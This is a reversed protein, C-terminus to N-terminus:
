RLKFTQAPPTFNPTSTSGGTYRAYRTIRFDDLYGTIYEQGGTYRSGITVSTPGQIYNTSGTGCAVGNLYLTVSTGARVYALHQWSNLPVVSTGVISLSGNNTYAYMKTGSSGILGIAWNSLTSSTRFDTLYAGNSEAPNATLYIWSEITFDGSLGLAPSSPIFNYDNGDLFIAGTGYKKQVTSVKSDNVTELVLRGSSDRAAADTFNLLLSTNSVATLPATPPTFNATYVATGKIIRLDAIYGKFLDTYGATIYKGVGFVESSTNVTSATTTTGNSVGNLYHTYTTGSKVFAIHNWSNLPVTNTATLGVAGAAGYFSPKGQNAGGGIIGYLYGSGGTSTFQNAIAYSMDATSGYGTLYIWAEITYNISGSLDLNVNNPTTLYDGTGDFYASGGHTTPSYAVTPRFPSFAQVQPTGSVTFVTNSASSDVFRNSHCVLLSTNTIPTLPSTDPTFNATYLATGNVIRLNSIYGNFYRATSYPAHYGIKLQSGNASTGWTWGTYATSGSAVGNIYLTVSAGNRVAAIHTWANFPVSATSDLNYAVANYYWYFRAKNTTTVNLSFYTDGVALIAPAEAPNAGQSSSLPYVWCEITGIASAGNLFSLQSPYTSGAQTYSLYADSGNFYGSWGAPSFPSFTGQTANGNRTILFQNSSSDLFTHNNHPQDYQLTLLQTNALATLPQTPPTFVQTNITTAATDYNAPVTKFLRFDTLYGTLLNGGLEAVIQLTGANLGYNNTNGTAYGILKGNLFIRVAGSKRTYCIHFWEYIPAQVNSTVDWAIGSRGIGFGRSSTTGGDGFFGSSSASGGMVRWDTATSTNTKYCWAEISFDGTGVDLNASNAAQVYDGTGDFYASGSTGTNTINFPNFSRVAVDGNRTITFGTGSNATSNDIFRNSQCTLLVTNTIPALPTTPVPASSATYVGSGIVIRWNSFYGTAAATGQNSAGLNWPATNNWVSLSTNANITTITGNLAGYIATGVRYVAIHNWQNLTVTGFAIQNALDDVTNGSSIWATIVGSTSVIIRFGYDTSSNPQKNLIAQTNAFTTPYYFFEICFSSSGLELIPSDAVSLYDSTGDFYNSWGTGYPTFNSARTDGYAILNFNNNSSDTLVNPATDGNILLTTLNFYTDSAAINVTFARPSDQLEADTAVVTFSYSTDNVLGSVTGSLLGGSTLTLGSPLTSGAQLAYTTASTASLQISIAVGDDQQPLTSSTVWSPTASYTVANVRIATGGDPNTVYLIYTGAAQAPLQVRLETSSTFTVATASTTGVVVSCGTVFNTGTLKIYGGATDVATDDLTTWSSNTIAVGTIKPGGGQAILQTVDSNLKAVTVGTDAIKATTINSDAIKATTVASNALDGTQISGDAISSSDIIGQYPQNGIYPM